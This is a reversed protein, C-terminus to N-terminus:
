ALRFESLLERLQIEERSVVPDNIAEEVNLTYVSEPLVVGVCTLAGNLSQDDEHFKVYPFGVKDAAKAIRDYSQELILSNGGNLVIITKHSEAWDTLLGYSVGRIDSQFMGSGYKVFMDHVAHATQIGQQIPSLYM